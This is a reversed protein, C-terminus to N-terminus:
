VSYAFEHAGVTWQAIAVSADHVHGSHEQFVWSGSGDDQRRQDGILGDLDEGHRTDGGLMTKEGPM